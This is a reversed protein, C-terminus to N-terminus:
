TTICFIFTYRFIYSRHQQFVCHTTLIENLTKEEILVAIERKMEKLIDDTLNLKLM